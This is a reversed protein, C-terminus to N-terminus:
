KRFSIGKKDLIHLLDKYSKFHISSFGIKKASKVNEYLDDIFLCEIPDSKAMYAAKIYIEEQPKRHGINFSYIAGDVLKPFLYNKEIEDNIHKPNTNSLLWISYNKKLKKLIKVVETEEGLLLRWAKWFDSEKLCCPQPLSDKVALFFDRDSLIGKEYNDHDKIPFSSEIEEVTLDTCDALFGFTRKFNIDILVGGIDFFITKIINNM